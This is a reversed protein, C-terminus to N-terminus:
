DCMYNATELGSSTAGPASLAAALEVAKHRHLYLM